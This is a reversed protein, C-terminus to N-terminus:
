LTIRYSLQDAKDYYYDLIGILRDVLQDESELALEVVSDRSEFEDDSYYLINDILKERTSKVVSKPTTKRKTTKKKM